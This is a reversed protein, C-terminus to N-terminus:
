LTYFYLVVVTVLIQTDEEKENAIVTYWHSTM